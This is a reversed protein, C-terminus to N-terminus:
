LKQVLERWQTARYDWNNNDAFNKQEILVSEFDSPNTKYNYITSRLLTEYYDINDSFIAYPCTEPLAGLNTTVILAKASMAEHASICYTEDWTNPYAMIHGYRSIWNHLFSPVVPGYLRTNPVRKIINYLETFGDDSRGYIGMGSFVHLYVNPMELKKFVKILVDLGRFPTSSYFLNIRDKPKNYELLPDIGNGIVVCKSPDINLYKIFKDMQWQSVFVIKEFKSQTRSLIQISPQDFSQHMWLIPKYNMPDSVSVKDKLNPLRSFIAQAAQETGGMARLFM